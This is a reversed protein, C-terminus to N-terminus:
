KKWVQYFEPADETTGVLHKTEDNYPICMRYYSAVCRFYNEEKHSFLNCRWTSDSDKVLVKDFPQLTSFDFKPKEEKIQIALIESPEIRKNVDEMWAEIDSCYAITNKKNIFLLYKDKCVNKGDYMWVIGLEFLKEQVKATEETSTCLIKTSSLYAFIEEKTMEKTEMDNKNLKKVEQKEETVVEDELMWDYWMWGNNARYYGNNVSNIKIVDGCWHRMYKTFIGFKKGEKAIIEENINKNNNYWELSKVRVIDGVKFKLTEM